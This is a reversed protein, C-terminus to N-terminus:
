WIASFYSQTIHYYIPASFMLPALRELTGRGIYRDGDMFRSGLSRKVSSIVMDGFAGTVVIVIAMILAQWSRFPTMWYLAYGILITIFGGILLGKITKHPNDRLPKGGFYSSMMVVLLDGLFVILLFFLLLLSPSSGFRLIEFNMIAPAHSVCYVSLMLGWQVKAVRELFRDNDHRLSMLVPLLLFLYVPIFLTYLLYLDLGILVYQLRIVIYFSIVLAWHDSVKTPTLAVFERFTFFSVAAFIVLLLPQGAWFAITFIAILWWGMKVRSSVVRIREIQEATHAKRVAWQCYSSGVAQLFFLIVLVLTYTEQLTIGLRLM